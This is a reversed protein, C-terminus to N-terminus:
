WTTWFSLLVTKGRYQRLTVTEGAISDLEFGPANVFDPPPANIEMYDMLNATSANMFVLTNGEESAWKEEFGISRQVEPTEDQGVFLVSGLGLVILLCVFTLLGNIKWAVKAM